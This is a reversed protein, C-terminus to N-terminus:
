MRLPSENEVSVTNGSLDSEWLYFDSGPQDPDEAIAYRKGDRIALLSGPKAYAGCSPSDHTCSPDACLIGSIGSDKDCYRLFSDGLLNGCFYDDTEILSFGGVVSFRNDASPLDTRIVPSQASAPPDTQTQLPKEGCGALLLAIVLTLVAYKM